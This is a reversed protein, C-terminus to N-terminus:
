CGYAVRGGNAVVNGAKNYAILHLALLHRPPHRIALLFFTGDIVHTSKGSNLDRVKVARPATVLGYRIQWLEGVGRADIEDQVCDFGTPAHGQKADHMQKETAFCGPVVGGGMGISRGGPGLHLFHAEPTGLWDGNSLRLAACWGGKTARGYWFAVPGVNPINVSAVKKVSDPIAKQDWIGRLGIAANMEGQPNAKFLARPTTKFAGVAWAVGATMVALVALAVAVRVARRAFTPRKRAHRGAVPMRRDAPAVVVPLLAAKLIATWDGEASTFAPVFADLAEAVPDTM